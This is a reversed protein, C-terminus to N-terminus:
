FKSSLRQRVKNASERVKFFRWLFAILFHDKLTFYPYYSVKAKRYQRALVYLVSFSNYLEKRVLRSEFQSKGREKFFCVGMEWCAIISDQYEAIFRKKLGPIKSQLVMIGTLDFSDYAKKAIKEIIEQKKEDLQNDKFRSGWYVLQSENEAIEIWRNKPVPKYLHAFEFSDSQEPLAYHNDYHYRLFGRGLRIDPDQLEDVIIKWATVFNSMWVYRVAIFAVFVGMFGVLLSLIKIATEGM